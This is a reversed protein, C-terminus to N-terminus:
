RGPLDCGIIFDLIERYEANHRVESAVQMADQHTVMVNTLIRYVAKPWSTLTALGEQIDFHHSCFDLGNSQRSVDRLTFGATLGAAKYVETPLSTWILGDDGNSVTKSATGGALLCIYHSYITRLLTNRRSTDKSGSNLMGEIVKAFLGGGLVATSRASNLAWRSNCLNWKTLRGRLSKHTLEDLLCTALLAQLTHLADFGGMDDSICDGYLKTFDEIVRCFQKTQRDTFGIGVASGNAYIEDEHMLTKSSEGFLVTEILLDVLAASCICRFRGDKVKREPHPENKIFISYPDTLGSFILGGDVKAIEEFPVEPDGWALIRFVAADIIDGREERIVDKNDGFALNLPYGPTKDLAVGDLADSVLRHMTLYNFDSDVPGKITIVGRQKAAQHVAKLLLEEDLPPLRSRSVHKKYASEKAGEGKPPNSFSM